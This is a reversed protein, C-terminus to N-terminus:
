LLVPFLDRGSPSENGIYREDNMFDTYCLIITLAIFTSCKNRYVFFSKFEDYGQKRRMLAGLFYQM